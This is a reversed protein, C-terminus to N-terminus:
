RSAVPGAAPKVAPARPATAPVSAALGQAPAAIQPWTPDAYVTGRANTAAAAGVGNSRVPTTAATANVKLATTDAPAPPVDLAIGPMPNELPPWMPDRCVTCDTAPAAAAPLALAALLSAAATRLSRNSM